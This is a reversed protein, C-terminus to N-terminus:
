LALKHLTDTMGSAAAATAREAREIKEIIEDLKHTTEKGRERCIKDHEERTMFQGMRRQIYLAFGCLGGLVTVAIAVIAVWAQADMVRDSLQHESLVGRWKRIRQESVAGM